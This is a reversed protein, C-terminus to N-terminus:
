NRYNNDLVEWNIRAQLVPYSSAKTSFPAYTQNVQSEGPVIYQGSNGTRSLMWDTSTADVIQQKYINSDNPHNITSGVGINTHNVYSSDSLKYFNLIGQFGSIDKSAYPLITVWDVNGSSIELASKSKVKSYGMDKLSETIVGSCDIGDKSKGGYEYSTGIYSAVTLAFDHDLNYQILKLQVDTPLNKNINYKEVYNENRNNQITEDIGGNNEETLIKSNNKEKQEDMSEWYQPPVGHYESSTKSYSTSSTSGASNSTEKTESANTACTNEEPMWTKNEKGAAKQAEAYARQEWGLTSNQTNSNEIQAGGNIQYLADGTIESYDSFDYIGFNSHNKM